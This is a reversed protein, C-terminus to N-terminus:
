YWVNKEIDYMECEETSENLSVDGGAVYICMRNLSITIGFNCWPSYMSSCKFFWGSKAEVKFCSSSLKSYELDNTGGILFIDNAPTYAIWSYIINPVKLIEEAIWGYITVLWLSGIKM